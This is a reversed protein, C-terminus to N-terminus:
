EASPGPIEVAAIPEKFPHARSMSQQIASSNVLLGYQGAKM